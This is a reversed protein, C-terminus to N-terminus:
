AVQKNQQVGNCKSLRTMREADSRAYNSKGVPAQVTTRRSSFSRPYHTRAIAMAM